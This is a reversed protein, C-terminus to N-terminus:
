RWLNEKERSSDDLLKYKNLLSHEAEELEHQVKKLELEKVYLSGLEFALSINPDAISMKDVKDKLSKIEDELSSKEDKITGVIAKKNKLETQLVEKEQLVIKLEITQVAGESPLKLQKKLNQIEMDKEQIINNMAENGEGKNIEVIKKEMEIRKIQLAKKEAQETKLKGELKKFDRFLKDKSVTTSILNSCILESTHKFFEVKDVVSFKNMNLKFETIKKNQVDATTAPQIVVIKMM